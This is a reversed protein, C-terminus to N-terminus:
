AAEDVNKRNDIVDEVLAKVRAEDPTIGILREVVAAASEAAVDRVNALAEDKAAKIRDEAQATQEALKADTEERMRATEENLRDRMEQAIEHARSKAEALAKEYEEHAEEAQNKLADAETLDADIREARNSLVDSVQPLAVRAMLLYLIVFTIALWVLQPSFLEPDLQPM